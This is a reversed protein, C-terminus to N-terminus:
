MLEVIARNIEEQYEKLESEKRKRLRQYIKIVGDESFGFDTFAMETVTCWNEITRKYIDARLVSNTVWIDSQPHLNHKGQRNEKLTLLVAQAIYAWHLHRCWKEMNGMAGMEKPM